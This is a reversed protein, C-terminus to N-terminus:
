KDNSRKYINKNKFYNLMPSAGSVVFPDNDDSADNKGREEFFAEIKGDNGVM